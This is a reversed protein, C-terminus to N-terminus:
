AALPPLALFIINLSSSSIVELLAQTWIGQGFISICKMQVGSSSIVIDFVYHYEEKLENIYM